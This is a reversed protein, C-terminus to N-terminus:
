LFKKFKNVDVGKGKKKLKQAEEDRELIKDAERELAKRKAKEKKEQKKYQRYEKDM